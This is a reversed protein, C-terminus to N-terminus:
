RIGPCKMAGLLFGAGMLLRGGSGEGALGPLCEDGGAEIPTGTASMAYLCFRVTRPSPRSRMESLGDAPDMRATAQILAKNRRTALYDETTRIFWM